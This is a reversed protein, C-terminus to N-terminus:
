LEKAVIIGSLNDYTCQACVPIKKEGTYIESVPEDFDLDRDCISCKYPEEPVVNWNYPSLTIDAASLTGILPSLSNWVLSITGYGCITGISSM